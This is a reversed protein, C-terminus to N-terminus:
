DKQGIVRSFSTRFYNKTNLYISILGLGNFMLNVGILIGITWFATLPLGFIIIIALTFQIISFIFTLWWYKLKHRNQIAIILSNIGELIFYVGIGITLFVVNFFPNLTLYVGITIMLLATIGSLFAHRINKRMLISNLFKYAGIIVLGCSLLIALVFTTFQPIIVILLGLLFILIGEALFLKFFSQLSNLSM